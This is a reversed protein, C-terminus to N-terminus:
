DLDQDIVKVTHGKTALHLAMPLGMKGIGIFLIKM